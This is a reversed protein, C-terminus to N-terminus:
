FRNDDYVHTLTHQIKHLLNEDMHHHAKVDTIFSRQHINTMFASM